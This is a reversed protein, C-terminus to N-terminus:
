PSRVQRGEVFLRSRRFQAHVGDAVAQQYAGWLQNLQQQEAPTLVEYLTFGSDKLRCRRGILNDAQELSAVSFWVSGRGVRAVDIIVFEAGPLRQRLFSDVGSRLSDRVPLPGQLRFQKRIDADPIGGHRSAPTHRPPKPASPTPHAPSAAAAAAAAYTRSAARTRVEQWGQQQSPPQQGPAQQPAQKQTPGQQQKPAQQQEPAQQQKFGQLHQPKSDQQQKPAHLMSGQRMPALPQTAGQQMPPQQMAAQQKPPQQMAAQQMSPQQMTFQPSYAQQMAAQQKFSHQLSAIAESQRRITDAQSAITAEAQQLRHMVGDIADAHDNIVDVHRRITSAHRPIVQYLEDVAAGVVGLTAAAYRGVAPAAAAHDAQQQQQEPQQLQQKREQLGDYCSSSAKVAGQQEGHAGHQKSCASSGQMPATQGSYGGESMCADSSADSGAQLAPDRARGGRVHVASDQEDESAHKDAPRRQPTLTRSPQAGAPEAPPKKRAKAM